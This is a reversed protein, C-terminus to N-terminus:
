VYWGLIIKKGFDIKRDSLPINFRHDEYFVVFIVKLKYLVLIMWYIFSFKYFFFFFFFM